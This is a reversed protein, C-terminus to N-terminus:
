TGWDVLSLVDDHRYLPAFDNLAGLSSAHRPSRDLRGPPQDYGARIPFFGQGEGGVGDFRQSDDGLPEVEDVEAVVHLVLDVKAVRRFAFECLVM